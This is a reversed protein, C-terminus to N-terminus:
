HASKGAALRAMEPKAEPKPEAKTGFFIAAAL